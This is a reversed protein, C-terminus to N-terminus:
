VPVANLRCSLQEIMICAAPESYYGTYKMGAQIDDSHNIMRCLLLEMVSLTM